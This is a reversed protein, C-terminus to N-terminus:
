GEWPVVSLMETRRQMRVVATEWHNCRYFHPLRPSPLLLFALLSTWVAEAVEEAVDSVALRGVQAQAVGVLDACHIGCPDDRAPLAVRRLTFAHCLNLAVSYNLFLDWSCILCNM